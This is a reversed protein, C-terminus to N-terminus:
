VLAALIRKARADWTYESIEDFAAEARRAGEVPDACAERIVRALEVPDDPPTFFCSDDDLVERISPVDSAVIPRHSTMYTFLKLPSTFILSVEDKGTNPLVLVDGASQNDALEAYSRYGLWRVKKYKLRLDYVQKQEGGICVFTIEPAYQAAEAFTTIGKWGDVRGIYLAIKTDLPLGLRDRANVQPQPHAFQVLDIGDPAVVLKESEVGRKAYWNKAAHTLVVVRHAARATARAAMDWEGTHSEWVIRKGPVSMLAFIFAERSYIVDSPHTGVYLAAATAFVFRELMYGFKGLPLDITFLPTIRFNKECQYYGFPDQTIENRRRPVVLEVDHGARALAECTKMIQLGHAKETPLRIDALYLIRM